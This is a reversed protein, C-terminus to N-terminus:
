HRVVDLGSRSHRLYIFVTCFEPIISIIKTNTIVKKFFRETGITLISIVLGIFIQMFLSIINNM